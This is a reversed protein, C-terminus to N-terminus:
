FELSSGAKKAKNDTIDVFDLSLATNLDKRAAEAQEILNAKQAAELQAQAVEANSFDYNEDNALLRNVELGQQYELTVLTLLDYRPTAEELNLLMKYQHIPGHKSSICITAKGQTDRMQLLTSIADMQSYSPRPNVVLVLVDQHKLKNLDDIRTLELSHYFPGVDYGQQYARALIAYALESVRTYNGLRLFLSTTPLIQNDINSVLKDLIEAVHKKSEYTAGQWDTEGLLYELNIDISVFRDINLGLLETLKKNDVTRGKKVAQKRERVANPDPIEQKTVTCWLM